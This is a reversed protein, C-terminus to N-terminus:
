VKSGTLFKLENVSMGHTRVSSSSPLAHVRISQSWSADVGVRPGQPEADIM